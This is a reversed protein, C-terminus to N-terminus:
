DPHPGNAKTEQSGLSTYWCNTKVEDLEEKSFTPVPNHRSKHFETPGCTDHVACCEIVLRREGHAEVKINAPPPMEM